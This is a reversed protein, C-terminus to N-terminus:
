KSWGYKKIFYDITNSGIDVLKEVLSDVSFTEKQYFCSAGGEGIEDKYKNVVNLNGFFPTLKSINTSSIKEGIDNSNGFDCGNLCVMYPCIDEKIYIHSFIRLNKGIRDCAANGIAQKGLGESMRRDNTGQKKMEVAFIPYSIEQGDNRMIDIYPIFGDTEIKSSKKALGCIDPYHKKATEESIGNLRLIKQIYTYLLSGNDEFRLHINSPLKWYFKENLKEFAKVCAEKAIQDNLFSEKSQIMM